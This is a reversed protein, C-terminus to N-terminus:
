SAESPVGQIPHVAFNYVAALVGGTERELRLVGVDPDIPGIGAVEESPPLAYAHRADAEGGSRLKYRRNESVRDCRGRGAALRVPVLGAAADRLADFTKTAFDDCPVGHCHSANILVHEINLEARARERLQPVFDDPVHGIAGLAVVDLTVIAVTQDGCRLVLAKAFVPCAASEPQCETCAYRDLADFASTKAEVKTIDRKAAGALLQETPAAVTPGPRSQLKRIRAQNSATDM